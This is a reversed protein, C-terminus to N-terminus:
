RLKVWRLPDVAQGLHRLEFYLGSEERGGSAGVTAITDGAAVEDGTQRLLSENNAYISLYAEGHDVILLNGFGRMWDAFVVRGTAISHVADGEPARIFLGKISAGTENRLGKSREPLEGRVPLRLRGRLASFPGSMGAEPVRENRVFGAKPRAQIVRAIEEVLRTLRTEDALLGKLERRQRRIESSLQELLRRRERGQVLLKQREARREGEISEIRAARERSREELRALEASNARLTDFMTAAARSLTALYYLTRPLESPDGGALAARLADPPGAAYRAALVRGLLAQQRAVSRGLEERQTATRAVEDRVSRQEAELVRLGRNADSIAGESDRLADRAEKRSSEAADMQSRLAGIRARLVALDEAGAQAGAPAAYAAAIVLICAVARKV